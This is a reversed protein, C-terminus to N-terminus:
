FRIKQEKKKITKKDFFNKKIRGKRKKRLTKNGNEKKRNPKKDGKMKGKTKDMKRSM